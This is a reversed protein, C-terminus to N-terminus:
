VQSENAVQGDRIGYFLELEQELFLMKQLNGNTIKEETGNKRLLFLEYIARGALYKEVVYFQVIEKPHINKNNPILQQGSDSNSSGTVEFQEFCLMDRRAQITLQASKKLQALNTTFFFAIVFLSLGCFLFPLISNSSGYFLIRVPPFGVVYLLGLVLWGVVFIISFVSWPTVWAPLSFPMRSLRLEMQESTKFAEIAAPLHIHYKRRIRLEVDTGINFSTQCTPCDARRDGPFIESGPVIRHCQPCEIETYM